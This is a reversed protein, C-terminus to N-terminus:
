EVPNRENDPIYIVVKEKDTQQVEVTQEAEGMSVRELRVGTELYNLIQNQTLPMEFPPLEGDEIYEEILDSAVKSLKLLTSLHMTAIQQSLRGEQIHRTRMKKIAELQAKRSEADVHDDWLNSREVWHYKSSWKSWQRVKASRHEHNQGYLDDVANRISRKLPPMDRYVCFAGFAKKTEYKLREWPKGQLKEQLEESLPM